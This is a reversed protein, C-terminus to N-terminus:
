GAYPPFPFPAGSPLSLSGIRKGGNRLGRGAAHRLRGGPSLHRLSQRAGKRDEDCPPGYQGGDGADRAAPSCDGDRRATINESFDGAGVDLRAQMMRFKEEALLSVQRGGEGAHANGVVAYNERLRVGGAPNKREGEKGSRCVAFVTGNM